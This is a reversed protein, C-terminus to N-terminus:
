VEHEVVARDTSLQLENLDIAVPAKRSAQQLVPRTVASVMALLAFWSVTTQDYYSTGFFSCIHSFLAAGIAWIFFAKRPDKEWVKRARGLRQFAYVIVVVFLVFTLLGGQVAQAVFWNCLDWMNFGWNANNNTGLLWWEGFHRIANDILAARDWSTSSGTVDVRSILWWVDAKMVIELAVLVSVIGWRVWRMKKRIPWLGFAVIAGVIAMLPTSSGSTIAIALSAPIGVLALLRHKPDRVLLGVFLAFLTAGFAGAPIAQLFPGQSRITGSRVESIERVGGLLAFPNRGTIREAIMLMGLIFAIVALVRITRRADEENLVLFRLVYYVGITDMLGRLQNILAGSTQWRLTFIVAYSIAWFVFVRDLSNRRIRQAPSDNRFLRFLAALTLIQLPRIHLAGMEIAQGLPILVAPILYAWILFKRPLLFILLVAVLVLVLVIPSVAADHAVGFAHVNRSPFRSSPDM